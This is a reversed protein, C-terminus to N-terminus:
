QGNKRLDARILAKVYGQKNPVSDLRSLVDADTAKNFKFTMMRFKDKNEADYRKVHERNKRKQRENIADDIIRKAEDAPFQKLLEAFLEEHVKRFTQTGDFKKIALKVAENREM